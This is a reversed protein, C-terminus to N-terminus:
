LAPGISVFSQLDWTLCCSISSLGEAPGTPLGEAELANQITEITRESLAWEIKAPDICLTDPQIDVFCPSLRRYLRPIRGPCPAPGHPVPRAM